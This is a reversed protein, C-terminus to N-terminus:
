EYRLTDVPNARAARVAQFSVTCCAIVLAAGGSIFFIELGLPIRYPYDSLWKGAAFYALPWAIVNALLVWRAFQLSLLAVLGTESAGLVKRIGIERGRRQALFSALGFLGLASILITLGTFVNFIIGTQRERRYLREYASDLFRYEFPMAPNIREWVEQIGALTGPIREGQIRVLAVGYDASDSWDRNLLFIHPEIANHLSRYHGNELVGIIKGHLVDSRSRAFSFSKGVPPDIGMQEVAEQNIIFAETEDTPFERSFVRGQKLELGMVDFFDIDVLHVVIDRRAEPDSGEWDIGTTRWTTEMFLYNQATVGVVGPTQLLEQKVADFRPGIEGKLPIFVVNEKNFALKQNKMFRLQRIVVTTLIILLISLAFQFIVLAKRLTLGGNGSEIKGRLIVAPKFRSLFFAPYSGSLLGTSIILALFILGHGPHLLSLNLAKGTLKNFAPMAAWALALAILGALMALMLSEMFFRRVLQLRRAGVTKRLGVERARLAARATSLNMFNICAILLVFFAVITFLAVYRSDGLEIGPRQYNRADLHVRTLPQFRFRVGSKVQPCGAELALTTMREALEVPDATPLLRVYTIFNFAGWHTGYDTLTDIHSFSQIYDFQIHSNSPCDAAVGIVTKQRGDLELAKGIPDEYGFYKRATSETLVIDDASSFSAVPNGQVVPFSFMEFFSPDVIIGGDEYFSKDQFRFVKRSWSAFRVSELIEPFRDRAAVALPAPTGEMGDWSNKEWDSVVRYIEAAHEHFRDYSLEERVWLLILLSCAMGVALGTINILSYGKHRKLNRLAVTLYNRIM